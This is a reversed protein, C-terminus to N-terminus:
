IRKGICYIEVSRPRVAKPKFTKMKPFIKKAELWFDNFDEGRFVKFIGHGGPKLYKKMVELAELNLEVSAYQDVDPIGMTKPAMDSMIVDFNMFGENEKLIKGVKDSFVDCVYTSIGELPEIEQLDLGVFTGGPCNDKAVQLWSGPCAGLDLVKQNKTFVRFKEQIELLKFASRARYGAEKARYFFKDNPTFAAVVKRKRQRGSNGKRAM